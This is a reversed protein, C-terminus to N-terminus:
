EHTERWKKDLEKLKQQLQVAKVVEGNWQYGCNLCYSDHGSSLKKDFQRGTKECRPCKPKCGRMGHPAVM